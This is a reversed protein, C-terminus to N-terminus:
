RRENGVVAGNPSLIEVLEAVTSRLEDSLTTARALVTAVKVDKDIAEDDSAM